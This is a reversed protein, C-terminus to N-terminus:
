LEFSSKEPFLSAFAADLRKQAAEFDIEDPSDNLCLMEHRSNAILDCLMDLRETKIERVFADTKGPSFRGAALQWWYALIQNVEEGNRLRQRTTHELIEPEKEWLEEFTSKLYSHAAHFVRFGTYYGPVNLKLMLSRVNDALPYQASWYRGWYDKMSLDRKNFWRNIISLDRALHLDWDRLPSKLIIPLEAFGAKPLGSKEDFFREPGLSRLLFVDDNFLVFREALGEIRHLNMELATSNFVPLVEKPMYDEHRVIHLRPNSTDLFAPLHGWTVFHVKRAWPAFTEISRFWYKMLDWDRFRHSDNEEAPAYKRREAQWAPDNGDVWLVVIDIDM